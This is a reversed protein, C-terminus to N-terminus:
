GDVADVFRFAGVAEALRHAQEELSRAAAASEEVLAANQQTMRDLETVALSVQGIGSSQENTAVSIDGVMQHVRSVGGVIENMANGAGVALAVGSEVKESSALILAKIQKAANASGQALTRVEGAVVAFGRGQGGARAAEVAANLALINTQFAIGDIVAIIEVIKRSATRIDEMSDVVQSVIAGGRQASAEAGTALSSAERAAGASQHVTSTFEEMSSATQQLNAATQETRTSLDLNGAAIESTAQAISRSAQAIVRLTQGLRTNMQCVAANLSNDDGPAREIQGTLDGDAIRRVLERLDGPEGGLDAWVSRVIAMSSLGLTVLVALGTLLNTWLSLHVGQVAKLESAQKLADAQKKRTNMEASLRDQTAQMKQVAPTPDQKALMAKTAAVSAEAYDDFAARMHAAEGAKEPIRALSDLSTRVAAAIVAVDKLKDSDGESAASQLTLRFQEIGHEVRTVHEVYPTDVGALHDLAESTRASMAVSVATGILLLAAASLPM